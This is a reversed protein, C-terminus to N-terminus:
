LIGKDIFPTMYKMFEDIAKKVEREVTNLEDMTDRVWRSWESRPTTKAIARAEGDDVSEDDYNNYAWELRDITTRGLPTLEDKNHECYFYALDWEVPEVSRSAVDTSPGVSGGMCSTHYEVMFFGDKDLFLHKNDKSYLRVSM